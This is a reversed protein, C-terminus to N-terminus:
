ISWNDASQNELSKLPSRCFLPCITNIFWIPLHALTNENHDNSAEMEQRESHISVTVSNQWGAVMIMMMLERM